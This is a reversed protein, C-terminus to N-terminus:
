QSFQQGGGAGGMQQTVGGGQQGIGGGQQGAMTLQQVESLTQQLVSACEQCHSAQHRSCEQACAQAAQQFTQVVENSFRSTRPVTALVTEGLEVVDECLRICEIMGPDATQICQDACWGCVQVAQAVSHLPRRYQQPFQGQQPQGGFQAQQQGTPASQQSM